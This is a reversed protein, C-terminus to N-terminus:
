PSGSNTILNHPNSYADEILALSNKTNENEVSHSPTLFFAYVDTLISLILFERYFKSKENSICKVHVNSLCKTRMM